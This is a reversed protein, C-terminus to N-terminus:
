VFGSETMEIHSTNEGTLDNIKFPAFNCRKFDDSCRLERYARLVAKHEKDFFIAM